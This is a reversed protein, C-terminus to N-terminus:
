KCEGASRRRLWENLKRRNSGLLYYVGRKIPQGDRDVDSVRDCPIDLGRCRLEAILDPSNSCGAVIDLHERRQPRKKLAHIVRLHRPNETGTFKQTNSNAKEPASEFSTQNPPTKM